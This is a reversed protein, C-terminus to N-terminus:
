GSRICGFTMLLYPFNSDTSFLRLYAQPWVFCCCDHTTLWFVLLVHGCASPGPSNATLKVYSSVKTPHKLADWQHPVFNLIHQRPAAVHALGFLSASIVFPGPPLSASGTPASLYYFQQLDSSHFRFRWDLLDLGAIQRLSDFKRCCGGAVFDVWDFLM